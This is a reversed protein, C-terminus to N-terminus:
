CPHNPHEPQDLTAGLLWGDLIYVQVWDLPQHVQSYRFCSTKSSRAVSIQLKPRCRCAYIAELKVHLEWRRTYFSIKPCQIKSVHQLTHQLNQCKSDKLYRMIKTGGKERRVQDITPVAVTFFLRWYCSIETYLYCLHCKIFQPSSAKGFYMWYTGTLLNQLVFACCLLITPTPWCVLVDRRYYISRSKFPPVCPEWSNM